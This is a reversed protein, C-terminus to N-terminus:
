CFAPLYYISIKIISDLWIFIKVWKLGINEKYEGHFRWSIELTGKRYVRFVDSFTFISLSSQLNGSTKLPYLFSVHTKFTNISFLFPKYVYFLCCKIRVTRSAQYFIFWFSPMCKCTEPDCLNFNVLPTTRTDKNTVSCIECRQRTNRSNVKFM